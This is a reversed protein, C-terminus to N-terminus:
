EVEDQTEKKNPQIIGTFNCEPTKYTLSYSELKGKRDTNPRLNFAVPVEPLSLQETVEKTVGAFLRAIWNKEEVPLKLDKTNGGLVTICAHDKLSQSIKDDTGNSNCIKYAKNLSSEGKDMSILLAEGSESHYIDLLKQVDTHCHEIFGGLYKKLSKDKDAETEDIRLQYGEGGEKYYIQNEVLWKVKGTFTCPILGFLNRIHRNAFESTRLVIAETEEVGSAVLFDYIEPHLLLELSPSLVMMEVPGFKNIFQQRAKACTENSIYNVDVKTVDSLKVIQIDYSTLSEM